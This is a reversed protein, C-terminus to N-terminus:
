VRTRLGGLGHTYIHIHIYKYGDTHIDINGLGGLGGGRGLRWGVHGWVGLGRWVGRWLRGSAGLGGAKTMDRTSLRQGM